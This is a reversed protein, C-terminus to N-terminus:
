ELPFLVSGSVLLMYGSPPSFAVAAGTLLASACVCSCVKLIFLAVGGGYLAFVWVWFCLLTLQLFVSTGSSQQTESPRELHSNYETMRFNILIQYRMKIHLYGALNFGKRQSRKYTRKPANGRDVKKYKQNCM